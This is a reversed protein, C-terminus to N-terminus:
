VFLEGTEIDYSANPFTRKLYNSLQAHAGVVRSTGQVKKPGGVSLWQEWSMRFIKPSLILVNRDTQGVNDSWSPLRENASKIGIIMHIDIFNYNHVFGFIGGIQDTPNNKADDWMLEMNKNARQQQEIYDIHSKSNPNKNIPSVIGFVNFNLNIDRM